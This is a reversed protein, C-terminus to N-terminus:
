KRRHSGTLHLWDRPLSGPNEVCMRTVGSATSIHRLAQDWTAGTGRHASSRRESSASRERFCRGASEGRRVAPVACRSSFFLFLSNTLSSSAPKRLNQSESWLKVWSFHRFHRGAWLPAICVSPLCNLLDTVLLNRQSLQGTNLAQGKQWPDIWISALDGDDRIMSLRSRAGICTKINWKWIQLQPLFYCSM